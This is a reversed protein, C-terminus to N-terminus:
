SRRQDRAIHMGLADLDWDFEGSSKRLEAKMVRGLANTPLEALIAVYKPIAYYPLAERCIEFFKDPLMSSGEELVVCAKIDDDGLDAEVAHVAIAAIEPYAILAQEIQFSSVNVGRRRIADAKRDMFMMEGSRDLMAFDGTRHFEQELQRPKGTAVDWYGSFMVNDELPRVCIEGVEGKPVDRGDQDFLRVDLTEVPRGISGRKKRKERSILSIPSVETQGLGEALVPVNFRKEFRDQMSPSMPVWVALRLGPQADNEGEPSALIAAGMSGVGWVLTAGVKRAETMFRSASFDSTVIVCAGSKLAFMLLILNGAAHYLPTPSFIRDSPVVWEREFWLRQVGTYYGHSIACGKPMGTTGSTYLISMIDSPVLKEESEIPASNRLLLHDIVRPVKPVEQLDDVAVIFQLDPLEAAMSTIALVGPADAIAANAGCDRLQHTLFKGRLYVNIPTAIAGLKALAFFAIIFDLRNGMVIAVRSGKIIGQQALGGAFRSSEDDVEAFTMIKDDVGCFPADPREKAWYRLQDPITRFRDMGAVIKQDSESLM